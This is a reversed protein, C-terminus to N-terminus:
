SSYLERLWLRIMLRHGLNKRKTPRRDRRDWRRDKPGKRRESGWERRRGSPGGGPHLLLTPPIPTFLSVFLIFSICICYGSGNSVNVGNRQWETGSTIVTPFSVAPRSVPPVLRSPPGYLTILLFPGCWLSPLLYGQNNPGIKVKM